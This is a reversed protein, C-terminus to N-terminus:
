KHEELYPASLCCECFRGEFALSVSKWFGEKNECHAAETEGGLM